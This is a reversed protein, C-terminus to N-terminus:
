LQQKKNTVLVEVHPPKSKNKYAKSYNTSVYLTHYRKSLVATASHPHEKSLLGSLQFAGGVNSVYDCFRVVESECNNDWSHNYGAQTGVYPPDLYFNANAVFEDSYSSLLNVFHLSSYHLKNRHPYLHSVWSQLKRETSTNYSRKGFTQNFEGRKNYRLVNNNCTLLLAYLKHPDPSSNYSSRLAAYRLPENKLPLVSRVKSLFDETSYLLGTHVAVLQLLTDNVHVSEYSQVVNSYVAGGGCFVDVFNSKSYDFQPLLQGLYRYKSGTYNLPPEVYKSNM